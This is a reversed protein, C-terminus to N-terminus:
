NRTLPHRCIHEVMICEEHDLADFAQLLAHIIEGKTPPDRFNANRWFQEQTWEIAELCPTTYHGREKQAHEIARLLQEPLNLGEKTAWQILQEHQIEIPAFYKKSSAADLAVGLARRIHNETELVKQDLITNHEGPQFMQRKPLCGSLLNAAEDITWTPYLFWQLATNYYEDVEIATSHVFRSTNNTTM